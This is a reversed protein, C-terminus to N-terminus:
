LLLILLFEGLQHALAIARIALSSQIGSFTETARSTSLLLDARVSSVFCTSRAGAALMGRLAAQRQALSGGLTGETSGGSGRVWDSIAPNEQM